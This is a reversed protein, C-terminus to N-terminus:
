PPAGEQAAFRLAPGAHDCVRAHQEFIMELAFPLRAGERKRYLRTRGGHQKVTVTM